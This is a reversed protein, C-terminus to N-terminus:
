RRWGRTESPTSLASSTMTNSSSGMSASSHRGGRRGVGGVGGVWKAEDNLVQADDDPARAVVDDVLHGERDSGPLDEAEDTLVPEPLVVTASAKAPWARLPRDM